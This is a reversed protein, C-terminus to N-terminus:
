ERPSSSSKQLLSLSSSVTTTEPTPTTPKDNPYSSTTFSTIHFGITAKTPPQFPPYLSLSLSLSVASVPYHPSTKESKPGSKRRGGTM